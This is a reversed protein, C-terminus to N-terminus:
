DVGIEEEDGYSIGEGDASNGGGGDTKTNGQTNSGGFKNWAASGSDILDNRYGGQALTNNAQTRGKGFIANNMSNTLSTKGRAQALQDEFRQGAISNNAMAAQTRAAANRAEIADRARAADAKRSYDDNGMARAMQGRQLLAQMARDQAMGAITEGRENANQAANQQADLAMALQAGSGLQGRAAFENALGKRRAMDNRNLTGEVKNLAAMDSLGLGGRANLDALAAMAEQQAIRSQPDVTISDLATPGVQQATVDKYGAPGLNYDGMRERWNRLMEDYAAQLQGNAQDASLYSNVGKGVGSILPGIWSYDAM